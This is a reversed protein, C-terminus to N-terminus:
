VDGRKGIEADGVRDDVRERAAANGTGEGDLPEDDAVGQGAM